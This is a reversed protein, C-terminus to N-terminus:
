LFLLYIYGGLILNNKHYFYNHILEGALCSFLSLQTLYVNFYYRNVFKPDMQNSSHFLPLISFSYLISFHSSLLFKTKKWIYKIPLISFHLFSFKIQKTSFFFWLISFSTPCKLKKKLYCLGFSSSFFFFGSLLVLFALFFLSTSFFFFFCIALFIGLLFLFFLCSHGCFFFFCGALVVDMHVICM